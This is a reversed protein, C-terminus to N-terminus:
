RLVALMPIGVVAVASATAAATSRQRVPAPRAGSNSSGTRSARAANAERTPTSASRTTSPEATEASTPSTAALTGSPVRTSTAAPSNVLTLQGNAACAPRPTVTVSTPSPSIPSRAGSYSRTATLVTCDASPRM